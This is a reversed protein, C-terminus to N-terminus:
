FRGRRPDGESGPQIEMRRNLRDPNMREFPSRPDHRHEMPHGRRGALANQRIADAEFPDAIKEAAIYQRAENLATECADCYLERFRSADKRQSCNHCTTTIM